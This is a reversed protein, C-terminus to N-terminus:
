KSRGELTFVVSNYTLVSGSSYRGCSKWHLRRIIVRCLCKKAKQIKACIELTSGRLTLYKQPLLIRVGVCNGICGLRDPPHNMDGEKFVSRLPLQCTACALAVASFRVLWRMM